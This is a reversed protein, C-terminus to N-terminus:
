NIWKRITNDSVGYKRGTGSYGLEKVDEILLEKDPREVKRKLFSSCELCIGNKKRIKKGCKCYYIAKERKKKIKEMKEGYRNGRCHTSLTANCNPCVIMLNEIRNDFHDGNIHDLILAMKEGNWNETQGCKECIRQKLGEQYLREKLHTSSAYTSNVVLIDKLDHINNITGSKLLDRYIKKNNETFHSIDLNYKNIYRTLTNFNGGSVNNGLKKLADTKNLSERVIKELNEKSYKNM